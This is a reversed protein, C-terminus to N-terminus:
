CQAKCKNRQEKEGWILNIIHDWGFLYKINKEEKTKVKKNWLTFAGEKWRMKCNESSQKM